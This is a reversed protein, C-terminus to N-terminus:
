VHVANSTQCGNVVLSLAIMPSASDVYWNIKRLQFRTKLQVSFGIQSHMTDGKPRVTVTYHYTTTKGVEYVDLQLIWLTNRYASCVLPHSSPDERFPSSARPPVLM